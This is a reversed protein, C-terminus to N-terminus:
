RGSLLQRSLTLHRQLIAVRAAAFTRLRRNRCRAACDAYARVAARHNDTQQTKYAADFDAGAVAELESIQTGHAGIVFASPRLSSNTQKLVAELAAANRRHAVLMRRAFARIEADHSAALAMAGAKLEYADFRVAQQVFAATAIRAPASARRANASAAPLLTLVVLVAIMTAASRSRRALIQGM